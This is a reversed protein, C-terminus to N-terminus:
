RLQSATLPPGFNHEELAHGTTADVIIIAVGYLPPEPAASTGLRPGGHNPLQVNNYIVAWVLRGASRALASASTFRALRVVPQVDPYGARTHMLNGAGDTPTLAATASIAPADSPAPPDLRDIGSGITAALPGEFAIPGTPPAVVTTPTLEPVVTPVTEPNVGVPIVGKNPFFHGIITTLDCGYVPPDVIGRGMDARKIYGGRADTAPTATVAVFDPATGGSGGSWPLTGYTKGDPRVGSVPCSLKSSTTTSMSPRSSGGVNIRHPSGSTIWAVTGAVITLSALSAVATMAPRARRHSVPTAPKDLDVPPVSRSTITTRAGVQAFTRRLREEVQENENM